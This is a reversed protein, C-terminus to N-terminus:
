CAILAPNIRMMPEARPTQMVSARPLVAVAIHFAHGGPLSPIFYKKRFDELKQSHLKFFWVQEVEPWSSPQMSYLGEIEFSFEEGIEDIETLYQFATERSPIVPIHAGEPTGFLNFYPPRVLGYSKLYPLMMSIFRNDIDLYVLGQSNKRLVGKGKCISRLLPSQGPVPRAKATENTETLLYVIPEPNRRKDQELAGKSFAWAPRFTAPPPDLPKSLRPSTSLPTPAPQTHAFLNAFRERLALLAAGKQKRKPPTQDNGILISGGWSM